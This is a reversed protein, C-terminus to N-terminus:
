LRQQVMESIIGMVRGPKDDESLNGMETDDEDDAEDEGDEEDNSSALDSLSDGTANLMEVFSKEPERTTLGAEEANRRDGQEKM